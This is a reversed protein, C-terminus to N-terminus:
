TAHKSIEPNEFTQINSIVAVSWLKFKGFVVQHVCNGFKEFDQIRLNVFLINESFTEM